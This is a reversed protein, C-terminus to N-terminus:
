EYFLLSGPSPLLKLKSLQKFDLRAQKGPFGPTQLRRELDEKKERSM